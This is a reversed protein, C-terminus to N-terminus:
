AARPPAEEKHGDYHKMVKYGFAAVDGVLAAAVMYSGVTSASPVILLMAGAAGATDTALQAISMAKDATTSRPDNVVKVASQADLVLCGVRIVPTLGKEVLPALAPPMGRLVQEKALLATTRFVFSPDSQLAKIINETSDAIAGTVKWAQSFVEKVQDAITEGGALNPAAGASLRVLSAKSLDFTEKKGAIELQMEAVRGDQMITGGLSQLFRDVTCTTDYKAAPAAASSRPYAGSLPTSYTNAASIM